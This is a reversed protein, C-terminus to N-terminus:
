RVMEIFSSLEEVVKEDSGLYGVSKFRINGTKDIVVKLPISSAGYLTQVLYKKAGDITSKEDILVHFNYKNKKLYTNINKTLDKTFTEATNIFLFVVDKDNEYKKTLKDMGPFAELCPICWTAWFDLVVIKGTYAALSVKKGNNDVLTFTPAPTNQMIQQLEIERGAKTVEKMAALVKTYSDLSGNTNLYAEKFAAIVTDEFNGAKIVEQLIPKAVEYNKRKALCLGYYTNIFILKEVNKEYANKLIPYAKELEGQDYFISGLLGNLENKRNEWKKILSANKEQSILSDVLLLGLTTIKEAENLETRKELLSTAGTIIDALRLAPENLKALYFNFRPLNVEKLYAQIISRYVGNTLSSFEKGKIMDYDEILKNGLAEMDVAARPTLAEKYRRSFIVPSNPYKIAILELTKEMEAKMELVEYLKYMKYYEVDTIQKQVDISKIYALIEVKGKAPEIQYIAKCYKQLAATNYKGNPYLEMENKFLDAAKQHNPEFGYIAKANKSLYFDGMAVLAGPAPQDANYIPYVYGGEPAIDWMKNLSFAFVILLSGSDIPLKGKYIEGEKLLVVKKSEQNFGDNVLVTATKLTDNEFRGGRPDYTFSVTDGMKPKLPLVTLTQGMCISVSSGLLLLVLQVGLYSRKWIKGIFHGNDPKLLRCNILNEM